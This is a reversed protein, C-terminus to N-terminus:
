MPRAVNWSGGIPHWHGRRKTNTCVSKGNDEIIWTVPLQHNRCYKVSEHAIGTEATMEGMFCYVRAKEGSRKIGLAIGAAISVVGGVIASSLIRYEPFCLSISRGAM